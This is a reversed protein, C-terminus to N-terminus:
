GIKASWLASRDDFPTQCPPGDAFHVRPRGEGRPPVVLITASRTGYPGAHVCPAGLALPKDGPDFGDAVDHARLVGALGSVLDEGRWMSAHDLAAAVRGAKPSTPSLPRNELVHLGPGLREVRPAGRGEVAVFFLAERDGVLLWCPNYDECRLRGANLRVGVEADAEATFLIPLEGRTRRGPARGRGERPPAQSAPQNTLGAFVGDGNVALWTGGAEVDRGGLTRPVQRLVGMPEAPRAFWEDRNAAVVLPADPHVQFLVALLCM